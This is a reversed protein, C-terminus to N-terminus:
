WTARHEGYLSMVAKLEQLVLARERSDLAAIEPLPNGQELDLIYQPVDRSGKHCLVEVAEDVASLSEM